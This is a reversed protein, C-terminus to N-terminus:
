PGIGCRNIIRGAPTSDFFSVPAALVSSLLQAHLRRSARMAGFFRYFSQAFAVIVSGLGIGAYVSLYYDDNVKRAFAALRAVDLVALSATAEGAHLETGNVKGDGDKDLQRM